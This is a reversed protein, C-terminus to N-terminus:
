IMEREQIVKNLRENEIELENIRRKAGVIFRANALAEDNEGVCLAVLSDDTEIWRQGVSNIEVQWEGQTIKYGM